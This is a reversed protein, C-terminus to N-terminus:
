TPKKLSDLYEQDVGVGAKRAAREAEHQLRLAQVANGTQGATKGELELQEIRDETRKILEDYANVTPKTNSLGLGDRDEATGKGQLLRLAREALRLKETTSAAAQSMELLEAAKEKSGPDVLAIKAVEDRFKMIDPVGNRASEALAELPKRFKQTFTSDWETDFSGGLSAGLPDVTQAVIGMGTKVQRAQERVAQQLNNINLETQLTLVAKTDQYFKGAKDSADKYADKV